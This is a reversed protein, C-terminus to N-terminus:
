LTTVAKGMHTTSAGYKAYIPHKTGTHDTVDGLSKFWLNLENSRTVIVGVNIRDYDFFIRFAYLDRDYTQDKSNWELDCAVRGKIYDMKYTDQRIEKGDVVMTAFFIRPGDLLGYSSPFNRLFPVKM